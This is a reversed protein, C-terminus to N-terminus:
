PLFSNGSLVDKKSVSKKKRYDAKNIDIHAKICVSAPNGNKIKELLSINIKLTNKKM